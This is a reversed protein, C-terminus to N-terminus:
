RGFSREGASKWSERSGAERYTRGSGTDVLEEKSSALELPDKTVTLLRFPKEPVTDM